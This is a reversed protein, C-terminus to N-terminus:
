KRCKLNTEWDVVANKALKVWQPAKDNAIEDTPTLICYTSPGKLRVNTTPFFIEAYVVQFNTTIILVSIVFIIVKKVM